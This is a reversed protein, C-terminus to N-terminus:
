GTGVGLRQVGRGGVMGYFRDLPEQADVLPGMAPLAPGMITALSLLGVAHRHQGPGETGYGSEPVYEARDHSRSRTTEACTLVTAICCPLVAVGGCM